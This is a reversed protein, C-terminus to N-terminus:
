STKEWIFQHLVLWMSVLWPRVRTVGWVHSCNSFRKTVWIAGAGVHEASKTEENQCELTRSLKCHLSSHLLAKKRHSWTPLWQWFSGMLCGLCETRESQMWRRISRLSVSTWWKTGTATTEIIHMMETHRQRLNRSCTWSCQCFLELNTFVFAFSCRASVKFVFLNKPFCRICWWLFGGQLQTTRDHSWCVGLAVFVHKTWWQIAGVQSTVETNNSFDWSPSFIIQDILKTVVFCPQSIWAKM